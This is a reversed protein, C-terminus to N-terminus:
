VKCIKKMLEKGRNIRTGVTGIPIRLIDSIEEYSKDDIFHLVIVESYIIPMKEICKNVAKIIENKDFEEELNSKDAFDFDENFHIEKYNKKIINMAENHTIRYIWSSFKRKKNFGNLNIYAKIFSNQVVDSAKDKDQILYNAYRLLKVEYREVIESYLEKNDHRIEEIIKEDSKLKIEQM